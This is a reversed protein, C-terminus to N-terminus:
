KWGASWQLAGTVVGSAMATGTNARTKRENSVDSASTVRRVKDDYTGPERGPMTEPVISTGMEALLVCFSQSVRRRFANM